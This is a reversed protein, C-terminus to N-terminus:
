ISAHEDGSERSRFVRYEEIEIDYPGRIRYSIGRWTVRKAIAAKVLCAFYVVHTLVIAAPMMLWVAASGSPCEVGRSRISAAAIRHLWGVMATSFILYSLLVVASVIAATSRGSVALGIVAAIQLSLMGLLWAAQLLVAAFNPHYLRTWLMQRFIFNFGFKLDCTEDNPIMLEPVFALRHGRKQLEKLLPADQVMSRQFLSSLQETDLASRRVAMCGGWPIQFLWMPIVAAANWLVRVSSGWAFTKPCYWRNGFCLGVKPDRLPEVLRRLVSRDAAVDGDLFVIVESDRHVQSLGQSIASCVLSCSPLKNKLPEAHLIGNRQEAIVKQAVHWAADEVSDIILQVDYHPYDQNAAARLTMELEPDAGRLPTIVTVRPLESGPCNPLSRPRLKFSFIAIFVLETFCLVGYSWNLLTSLFELDIM